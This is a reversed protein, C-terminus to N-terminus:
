CVFPNPDAAYVLHTRAYAHDVRADFDTRWALTSAIESDVFELLSPGSAGAEALMLLRELLDFDRGRLTRYLSYFLELEWPDLQKPHILPELLKDNLPMYSRHWRKLAHYVARAAPDAVQYQHNGLGSSDVQLLGRRALLKSYSTGEAAFMESFVGKCITWRHQRMGELNQWLEDITTLHDFLIYGVTVYMGYQKFIALADLNQRLSAQKNMRTLASQAYNEIGCFFAFFGARKLERVIADTIRDARVMARLRVRLGRRSIEDALATCWALDRPPELMSDDVVIFYSAGRATLDQLEAGIRTISHQRWQPGKSLRMFAVVSCFLCHAPCGRSTLLHIPLRRHMALEITDRAPLPLADIDLLLPRAPTHVPMGDRLFSIGQIDELRPCGDAFCRCLEIVTQEGEGRVVVDIGRSLFDEAHFTPGFGGVVIPPRAGAARLIDVTDIIRELNSRYCSFGIWLLEGLTMLEGAIQAPSLGNLWGDVIRVDYGDGRLVSALYGLGLNEEATRNTVPAPTCLAITPPM